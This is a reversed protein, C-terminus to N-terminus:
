KKIINTAVSSNLQTMDILVQAGLDIQQGKTNRYTDFFDIFELFSIERNQYSTLVHAFLLDYNQGFDNQVQSLLDIDTNLVKINQNVEAAVEKAYSQATSQVSKLEAEQAEVRQKGTNFVPLPMSLTAGWYRPIYNSNYDYELGMLVDPVRNAKELALTHEQMTSSMQKMLYDPRNSFASDLLNQVLLTACQQMLLNDVLIDTSATSVINV